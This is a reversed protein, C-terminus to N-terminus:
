LMGACLQNAHTAKTKNTDYRVDVSLLPPRYSMIKQQCFYIGFKNVAEFNTGAPSKSDTQRDTPKGTQRDARRDRQDRQRNRMERGFHAAIFVAFFFTRRRKM